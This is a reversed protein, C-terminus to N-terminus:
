PFERLRGLAKLDLVVECAPLGVVNTYSGVISEVLFAGIGQAAYAGAKDQGEGTAAYRRIEDPSAKRLTVQTEITREVSPSGPNEASAIAYRTKVVHTRGVIRLLLAEADATDTPKGLIDGDIVVITDAVLVASFRARAPASRASAGEAAGLRAGVASLKDRVIRVLYEDPQENALPTESVDAPEVLLPIGLSQLIDRRRPSASGLALPCSTSIERVQM